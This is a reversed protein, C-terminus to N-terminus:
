TNREKDRGEQEVCIGTAFWRWAQPDMDMQEYVHRLALQIRKAPTRKLAKELEIGTDRLMAAKEYLEGIALCDPSWTLAALLLLTNM